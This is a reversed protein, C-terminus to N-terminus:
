NKLIWWIRLSKEFCELCNMIRCILGLSEHLGKWGVWSSTRTHRHTHTHLVSKHNKNKLAQWDRTFCCAEEIGLCVRVGWHSGDVSQSKGNTKLAFPTPPPMLPISINFGCSANKNKNKHKWLPARFISFKQSREAGLVTEKPNWEETLKKMGAGQVRGLHSFFLSRLSFTVSGKSDLYKLEHTLPPINHTVTTVM